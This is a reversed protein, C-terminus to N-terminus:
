EFYVWPNPQVQQFITFLCELAGANAGTGGKINEFMGFYLITSLILM